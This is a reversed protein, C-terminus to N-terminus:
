CVRDRKRIDTESCTEKVLQWTKFDLLKIQEMIILNPDKAFGGVGEATSRTLVFKEKGM